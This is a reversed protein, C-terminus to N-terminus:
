YNEIRFSDKWATYHIPTKTNLASTLTGQPINLPIESQTYENIYYTTNNRIYLKYRISSVEQLYVYGIHKQSQM